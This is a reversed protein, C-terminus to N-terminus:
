ILISLLIIYYFDNLYIKIKFSTVNIYFLQVKHLSLNIVEAPFANNGGSCYSLNADAM